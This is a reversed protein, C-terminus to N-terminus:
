SNYFGEDTEEKIVPSDDHQMTQDLANPTSRKSGVKPLGEFDLNSKQPTEMKESQMQSKSLLRNFLENFQGFQDMKSNLLSLKTDMTGM